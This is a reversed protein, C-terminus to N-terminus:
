NDFRNAHGSTDANQNHGTSQEVKEYFKGGKIILIATLSGLIYVIVDMLDATGTTLNFFQLLEYVVGLLSCLVLWMLRKREAWAIIQIILTFSVSWLLDAGYGRLIRIVFGDGANAEIPFM